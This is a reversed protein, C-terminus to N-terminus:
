DVRIANLIDEWHIVSNDDLTVKFTEDLKEVM